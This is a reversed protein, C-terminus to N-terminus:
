FVGVLFGVKMDSSVIGICFSNVDDKFNIMVVFVCVYVKKDWDYM